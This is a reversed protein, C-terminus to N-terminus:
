VDATISGEHLLRVTGSLLLKGQASAEIQLTGGSQSLSLKVDGEKRALFAGVASTGSACSNEWFMTGASPVYVLPSLTDRERDFIMIGLADSGLYECWPKIMEEAEERSLDTGAIVHSIGEFSVVPCSRGGPLVREEVSVCEPMRVTGKMSGDPLTSVRVNVPDPTGSFDVDIVGEGIGREMAFLAAASMAANGCFEGGAMRIAIGDERLTVFGAQEASPEREMIMSAVRPQMTEAVPTKVLITINGTPDMLVYDITRM